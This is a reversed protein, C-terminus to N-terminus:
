HGDAISETSARAGAGRQDAAHAIAAAHALISRDRTGTRRAQKMAAEAAALRGAKFYCWALADETFIDHREAAAREAIRVAEDIKRDHDALFRALFIPQPADFRWGAEALAYQQSAAQSRGLAAYLDGLKAAVDPSPTRSMLAEYAAIAGPLDGRAEKVKAMGIQAFPHGPFSREAWRYEFDAADLKDLQRYLDGIQAHHWALSEPDSPPTADTSLRMADLAADLRGRLEFAYAARAYAGATPRADLMRQFAAFADDYEGLELHGDGLVGDNWDDTPRQDRTRTAERIAEHFRHESLYVAALMRRADYELPEDKLVRLLAEEAVAALGANGSVRAQRLLADALSVAATADLPHQRLRSRMTDITRQLHERSTTPARDNLAETDMGAPPTPKHLNARVIVALAIGLVFGAVAIELGRRRLAPDL